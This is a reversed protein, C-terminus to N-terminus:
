GPSLPHRHRVAPECAEHPRLRGDGHGSGPPALSGPVAAGHGHRDWLRPAHHRLPRRPRLADALAFALVGPVLILGGIEMGIFCVFLLSLDVAVAPWNAFVAMGRALAMIGLWLLAYRLSPVAPNLAIVLLGAALLAWALVHAGDAAVRTVRGNMDVRWGAAPGGAVGAPCLGM